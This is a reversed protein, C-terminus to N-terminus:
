SVLFTKRSTTSFIRYQGQFSSIFLFIHKFFFIKFSLEGLLIVHLPDPPLVFIIEFKVKDPPLPIHTHECNMFEGLHNRRTAYRPPWRKIWRERHGMNREPTRM